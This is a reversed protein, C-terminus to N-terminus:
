LYLSAAFGIDRKILKDAEAFKNELDTNGIVKAAQVMQRLLEELRRMCRIISGEFVDTMLCLQGFTAGKTWAYIVDMLSPKFQEIYKQEDIDLRAEKSVTAIRRGLEQMAKLPKELEESLQPIKEAKEEFVFCSLLAAIQFSNLDNFQGNFLMETILLEDGSTIECAVRGKIEIVDSATCYGLRRLVRKRCKLEDMQLLSQAKRLESKVQPIKANIAQKKAFLEMSFSNIEDFKALRNEDQKMKAVIQQFKKDRIKM